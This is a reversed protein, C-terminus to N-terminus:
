EATPRLLFRLCHCENKDGDGTVQNYDTIWYQSYLKDENLVFFMPHRVHCQLICFSKPPDPMPNEPTCIVGHLDELRRKLLRDTWAYDCLDSPHFGFNLERVRTIPVSFPFQVHVKWVPSQNIAGVPRDLFLSFRFQCGRHRPDNMQREMLREISEQHDDLPFYGCNLKVDLFRTMGTGDYNAYLHSKINTVLFKMHTDIQEKKVAEDREAFEKKFPGAPDPFGQDQLFERKGSM